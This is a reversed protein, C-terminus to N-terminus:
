GGTLAMSVCEALCAKCIRTDTKPSGAVAVNVTCFSCLHAGKKIADLMATQAWPNEVFPVEGVPTWFDETIMNQMIKEAKPFGKLADWLVTAVRNPHDDYGLTSPVSVDHKVVAPLATYFPTQKSWAWHIAVNDENGKWLFRNKDEQAFALLERAQPPYLVVAPGTYWYCKFWNHGKGALAQAFPHQAHLSLLQGPLAKAMAAVVDLLQPHITVDDNLIIHPRDDESPPRSAIFEWVRMAWECAHEKRVSTSITPLPCGAEKLQDHLRQLSKQREPLFGAHAIM